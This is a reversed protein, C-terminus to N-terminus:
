QVNCTCDVLAADHPPQHVDCSGNHSCCYMVIPAVDNRDGIGKPYGM